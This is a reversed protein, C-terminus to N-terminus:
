LILIYPGEDRRPVLFYVANRFLAKKSVKKELGQLTDAWAVVENDILAVWKGAYRGLDTQRTTKTLIKLAM